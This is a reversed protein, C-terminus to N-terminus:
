YEYSHKPVEEFNDITFIIDPFIADSRKGKKDM